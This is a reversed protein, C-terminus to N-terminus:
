TPQVQLLNMERVIKCLNFGLFARHGCTEMARVSKANPKNFGYKKSKANGIVGEVQARECRINEAMGDSVDWTAKGTPAIGVHKVGLQRARKLNVKSYGGRDFGYRKPAKGFIAIHERLAQICFRQDSVHGGNNILFGLAFGDIRNIGWKLGFEM